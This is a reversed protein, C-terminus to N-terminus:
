PLKFIFARDIIISTHAAIPASSLINPFLSPSPASNSRPKLRSPVIAREIIPIITREGTIASKTEGTRLKTYLVKPMSGDTMGADSKAFSIPPAGILTSTPLSAPTASKLASTTDDIIPQVTENLMGYATLM